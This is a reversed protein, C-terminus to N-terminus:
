YTDYINNKQLSVFDKRYLLVLYLFIQVKRDYTCRILRNGVHRLYLKINSPEDQCTAKTSNNAFHYNCDMHVLPPRGPKKCRTRWAIATSNDCNSSFSDRWLCITYDIHNHYYSM